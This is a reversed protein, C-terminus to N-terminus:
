RLRYGGNDAFDRDIARAARALEARADAGQYAATFAGAFQETITPYGATVPRPVAVCAKTVPKTGCTRALGTGFLELAGGPRYLPSRALVSKTGPPAGSAQTIREVSRDSLLHDIFKGAAKANHTGAGIGWAWSGQGTKTGLGFDPLPLVVLDSGLARAYTPYQWHGVWSLAVRGSTFAATDTNPDVYPRWSAITQVTRVAAESDLTGGAKGDQILHAGASEVAPSFGYTGWENDFGRYESLDLAKGGPAARALARLATTFEEATWADDIGTPYRVGATDLLKRNGFIGLGSDYMGLSYLRGNEATGQVLIADTANARTAPSVFDELPALKGNYVLNSMTPGDIEAVDPMDEPRTAALTKPYDAEPILRLQVTIGSGSRNFEAVVDRLAAVELPQQGQLAWMTITGTGSGAEPGAQRSAGVCGTALVLM